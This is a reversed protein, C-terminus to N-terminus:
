RKFRFPGSKRAKEFLPPPIRVRSRRTILGFRPKGRNAGEQRKQQLDASKADTAASQNAGM